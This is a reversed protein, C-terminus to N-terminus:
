IKKNLLSNQNIKNKQKQENYGLETNGTIKDLMVKSMKSKIEIYKECMKNNEKIEDIIELLKKRIKLFESKIKEDNVKESVQILNLGKFGKEESIKMRKNELELIHNSLDQEMNIIERLRELNNEELAKLRDISLENEKQYLKLEKNLLEIMDDYM